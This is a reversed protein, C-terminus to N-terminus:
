TLSRRAVATTTCAAARVGATPGRRTSNGIFVADTITPNSNNFNVMGAGVQATNDGFTVTTLTPSAHDNYLGGGSM